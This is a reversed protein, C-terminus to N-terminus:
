KNQIISNKQLFKNLPFIGNDDKIKVMDGEEIVIIQKKGYNYNNDHIPINKNNKYFEKLSNNLEIDLEDNLKTEVYKLKQINNDEENKIESTIEENDALSTDLYNDNNFSDNNISSDLDYKELIFKPVIKKINEKKEYYTICNKM